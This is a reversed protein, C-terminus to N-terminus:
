SSLFQDHQLFIVMESSCMKKLLALILNTCIFCSVILYFHQWFCSFLYHLHSCVCLAHCGRERYAATRMKSSEGSGVLQWNCVYKISSGKRLWFLIYLCEFIKNVSIYVNSFIIKKVFFYITTYSSIFM